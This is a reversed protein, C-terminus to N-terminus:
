VPATRPSGCAVSPINKRAGLVLSRRAGRGSSGFVGTVCDTPLGDCQNDSSHKDDTIRCDTVSIRSRWM